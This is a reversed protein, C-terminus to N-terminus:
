VMAKERGESREYSDKDLLFVGQPGSDQHELHKKALQEALRDALFSSIEWSTFLRGFEREEEGIEWEEYPADLGRDPHASWDILPHSM